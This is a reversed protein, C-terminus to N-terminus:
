VAQAQELGSRSFRYLVYSFMACLGFVMVATKLGATLTIYVAVATGVIGSVRKLLAYEAVTMPNTLFEAAGALVEHRAEGAKDELWSKVSQFKEQLWSYAANLYETLNMSNVEKVNQM